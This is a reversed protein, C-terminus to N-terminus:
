VGGFNTGAKMGAQRLYSEITRRNLGMEAAIEDLDFGMKFLRAANRARRNREQSRPDDIDDNNSESIFRQLKSRSIGLVEEIVRLSYGSQSLFLVKEWIDGDLHKIDHKANEVRIEYSEVM